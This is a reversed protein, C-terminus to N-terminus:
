NDENHEKQEAHFRRALWKTECAIKEHGKEDFWEGIEFLRNGLSWCEYDSLKVKVNYNSDVHRKKGKDYYESDRDRSSVKDLFRRSWYTCDQDLSCSVDSHIREYRDKAKSLRNGIVRCEYESIVFEIKDGDESEVVNWEAFSGDEKRPQNM